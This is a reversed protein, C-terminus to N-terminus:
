DLQMQQWNKNYKGESLFLGSLNVILITYVFTTKNNIKLIMELSNISGM